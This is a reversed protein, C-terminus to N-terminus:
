PILPSQGAIIQVYGTVAALTSDRPKTLCLTLLSVLACMCALVSASGVLICSAQWFISPLKSFHFRSGGYVQCSERLAQGRTEQLRAARGGPTALTTIVDDDDHYCYSYIGLSTMTDNHIFWYPQLLCFCFAAAVTLSHVCWVVAVASLSM